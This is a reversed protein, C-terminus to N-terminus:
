ESVLSREGYPTYTELETETGNGFNVNSIVSGLPDTILFYVDLQDNNKATRFFPRNKIRLYGTHNTGSVENALQDGRYFYHVLGSSSSESILQSEGNYTYSALLNGRADTVDLLESLSNYSYQRGQDDRTINGAPDYEIPNSPYDAHSHVVRELRVADQDSYQYDAYDISGDAFATTCSRINRYADYTYSQSIIARGKEDRPLTTGTATYETLNDDDDFDFSESLMLTGDQTLRKTSLRTYEDYTQTFVLTPRNNATITRTHEMGEPNYTLVTRVSQTLPAHANYSHYEQERGFSDYKVETVLEQGDEKRTVKTLRGADDYEQQEEAGVYDTYSLLRGGVTFTYFSTRDINHQQRRESSLNKQKDYSYHCSSHSNSSEELVSYNDKYRHTVSHQQGRVSIIENKRLYPNYTIDHITGFPSTMESPQSSGDSPYRYSRVGGGSTESTMRGLGDFRRDGIVEGDLMIISVTDEILGETYTYTKIHEGTTEKSLRSFHDYEYLTQIGKPDTESYLRGWGDYVRSTSSVKHGDANYIDIQTENGDIDYTTETISLGEIGNRKTQAVPNDQDIEINGDPLTTANVEGFDNYSYCTTYDKSTPGFWDREIRESLQGFNDYHRLEVVSLMGDHDELEKKIVKGRGDYHVTRKVEDPATITLKNVGNGMEYLYSQKRSYATNAAEDVFAIRGSSDYETLKTVNESDVEKTIMGHSLGHTTSKTRILGDHSTHITTITLEGGLLTYNFESTSEKGNITTTIAKCMGYSAMDTRDDFFESSRSIGSSVTATKESIFSGQNNAWPISVWTYTDVRDAEGANKSAPSYTVTKPHGVFGNPDAPCAGTEGESPYYVTTKTRGNLEQKYTENGFDDYQYFETETRSEGNVTYTQSAAKVHTYNSPQNDINARIDAFYTHENTKFIAGNRSFTEKTQLHYRNFFREVIVGNPLTEVSSYQYNSSTYFTNDREPNWHSVGANGLYNTASYLYSRIETPQGMGPHKEYRSVCPLFTTPAGDPLRHGDLNHFIQEILGTPHTFSKILDMRNRTDHLYDIENTRDDPHTIRTLLYGNNTPRKAFSTMQSQPTNPLRHVRTLTTGYEILIEHGQEDYIRRVVDQDLYKQYQFHLRYGEKSILSTLLGDRSLEEVEGSLHIVKYSQDSLRVFKIDKTKRYPLHIEGIGGLDTVLFSQGTRLQVKKALRNYQTLGINWGKGFGIDTSSMFNHSLVLDIQPGRLNNGTLKAITINVSYTGTRPDVGTEIFESFNFANSIINETM